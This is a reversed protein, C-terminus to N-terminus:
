GLVVARMAVAAAILNDLLEGAEIREMHDLGDKIAEATYSNFHGAQGVVCLFAGFVDRPTSDSLAHIPVAVSGALMAVANVTRKASIQDIVQLFDRCTPESGLNNPNLKNAVVTPNKGLDHALGTIGGPYQMAERHLSKFVGPFLVKPHQESTIQSGFEHKM